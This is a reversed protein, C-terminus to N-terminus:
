RAEHKRSKITGPHEDSHECSRVVPGLYVKKTDKRWVENPAVKIKAGIWAQDFPSRSELHRVVNRDANRMYEM